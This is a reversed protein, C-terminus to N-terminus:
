PKRSPQTFPRPIADDKDALWEPPVRSRLEDIQEVAEQVKGKIEPTHQQIDAEVQAKLGPKVEDLRALIAEIGFKALGSDSIQEKVKPMMTDAAKFGSEAYVLQKEYKKGLGSARILAIITGALATVAPVAVIIIYNFLDIISDAPAVEEIEGQPTEVPIPEQGTPLTANTGTENQSLAIGFYITGGMFWVIAFTTLSIALIYPKDM